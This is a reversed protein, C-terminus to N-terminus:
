VKNTVPMMWPPLQWHAICAIDVPPPDYSCSYSSLRHVTGGHQHIMSKISTCSYQLSQDLPSVSVYATYLQCHFYPILRWSTLDSDHAQPVVGSNIMSTARSMRIHMGCSSCLVCNRFYVSDNAANLQKTSSNGVKIRWCFQCHHRRTTSSM